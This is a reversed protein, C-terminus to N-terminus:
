KVSDFEAITIAYCKPCISHSCLVHLRHLMYEELPEWLNNDSRISKCYSCIPIINQISKVDALATELEKVREDLNQRMQELEFGALKRQTIDNFVVAVKHSDPGDYRFAYIDFWHSISKFEKEFRVSEGTLAVRSYTDIWDMETDPYVQRITKGVSIRDLQTYKKFLPNMELFLLDIPKGQEDFLIEIICFGEDISPFLTRYRKESQELTNEINKKETIDVIQAIFHLPKGSDDRTLSVSLSVWIIHGQKHFFQKERKYSAIKGAYLKRVLALDAMFDGPHTVDQFAMQLLEKKSYGVLECLSHNVDHWQGDLTVIAMGIPAHLFASQFIYETQPLNADPGTTREM